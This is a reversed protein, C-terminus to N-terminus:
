RKILPKVLKNRDDGLIIQYMGNAFSALNTQISTIGRPVDLVKVIAGGADTIWLKRPEDDATFVITVLDKVPNPYISFLKEVAQRTVAVTNSYVFVAGIDIQKLRYYSTGDLPQMDELQYSHNGATNYSPRSGISSFHIGDASREVEFSATNIENATRWQLLVTAPKNVAAFSLLELPLPGAGSSISFPSFNTFGAQTKSYQGNANLVAPGFSGYEWLNTYHATRCLIRDFGILEHSTNWWFEATANSGGPVDEEIFWTRDVHSVRITDGSNGNLLVYDAVRVSFNDQTGANNIRVFNRSSDSTGMPFINES